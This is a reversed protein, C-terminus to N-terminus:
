SLPKKKFCRVLNRYELNANQQIQQVKIVKKLCKKKLSHFIKIKMKQFLGVFFEEINKCMVEFSTYIIFNLQKNSM